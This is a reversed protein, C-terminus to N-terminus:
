NHGPPQDGREAVVRRGKGHRVFTTAMYPLTSVWARFWSGFESGLHHGHVAADVPHGLLKEGREEGLRQGEEGGAGKKVHRLYSLLGM